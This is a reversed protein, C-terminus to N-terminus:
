GLVGRKFCVRSGSSGEQINDYPGCPIKGSYSSSLISGLNSHPGELFLLRLPPYGRYLTKHENTSSPEWFVVLSGAVSSMVM